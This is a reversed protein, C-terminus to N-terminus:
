QTPTPHLELSSQHVLDEEQTITGASFQTATAGQHSAVMPLGSEPVKKVRILGRPRKGQGLVELLLHNGQGSDGTERSEMIECNLQQDHIYTTLPKGFIAARFIRPYNSDNFARTTSQLSPRLWNNM